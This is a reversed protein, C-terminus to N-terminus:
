DHAADDATDQLRRRTRRGDADAARVDCAGSSGAGSLQYHVLLYGPGLSPAFDM